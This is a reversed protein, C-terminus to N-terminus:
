TADSYRRGCLTGVVLTLNEQIHRNSSHSAINNENPKFEIIESTLLRQFIPYWAQSPWKPVVVIGRAKDSIIKMLVKLIIAFPPFAYFFWHSWNLTFANIALADPDRHWSVYNTCKNNVRSAFLDVVPHGFQHVISQFCDDSLEWEIDPHVRRSEADATENESSKIYAAHIYLRRIECWQWISKAIKTLHPFQVGGMRNIYSIATTNDVRLLIQRDKLNKAFIKLGFFAALLELENIHKVREEQSWVGSATDNGCATGWGTTSADTFIEMHYDNIRIQRISSNIAKVWWKLDSHLYTPISMYQEYDGHNKLSLFKHREFEKTYLMGYEIAPCAAILSGVLQAFQRIKCRKCNLMKTIEKILKSQKEAPLSVQFAHSDIIYGLFKCSTSPILISKENNIIFGLATLLKKTITINQLCEQHTQGLLLLDDLYITSILGGARLLKVVPKMIKTFIYPATSLGFPLVNFEYLIGEWFFRLYKRSERHIKILFYADKLDLKGMYCDRTTLKIATRFDELKFHKTHVSKNLHKLNLILRMKGNPKPRLFVSSIFQGESSTCM